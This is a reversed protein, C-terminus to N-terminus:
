VKLVAFGSRLDAGLVAVAYSRDISMHHDSANRLDLTPVARDISCSAVGHQYMDYQPLTIPDYPRRRPRRRPRGAPKYATGCSFDASIAGHVAVMLILHLIRYSVSSRKTRRHITINSVPLHQYTTSLRPEGFLVFERSQEM